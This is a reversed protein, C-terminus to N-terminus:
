ALLAAKLLEENRLRGEKDVLGFDMEKWTWYARGIGAESLIRSVDQTWRIRSAMSVGEFVGYEGCYLRKGSKERFALAPELEARLYAIDFFKGEYGSLDTGEFVSKGARKIAQDIPSATGPYAIEEKLCRYAGVWPAKQHSFPHPEYFHFSYLVQPDDLIDLEALASPANWRNGGILIERESDIGRIAELTRRALSNWPGSDPLVIENMLEFLIGPGSARYRRALGKWLNIFREQMGPDQFLTASAHDQFRFGPAAHLDLITDLGAEKAWSLAQDIRALGEERETFAGEAEKEILPYDLPLRVHDFGARAIAQFDERGIFSDFHAQTFEPYQSLWGGLNVGRQWM